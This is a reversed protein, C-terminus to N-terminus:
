KSCNACEYTDEPVPDLCNECLKFLIQRGDNIEVIIKDKFFPLNQWESFVAISDEYVWLFCELGKETHATVFYDKM